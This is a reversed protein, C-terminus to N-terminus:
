ASVEIAYMQGTTSANRITTTQSASSGRAQLKYTVASTTAPTVYGIFTFAMDIRNIVAATTTNQGMLFAQAGSIANDSSDAIRLESAEPTTAAHRLNGSAIILLASDSKQPTITVSMGTIDAFTTSTTSRDTTDTARVIQLIKGGEALMLTGSTDPLTLATTGAVAPADLEVYGSTSGNLRLTMVCGGM